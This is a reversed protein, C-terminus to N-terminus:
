QEVEERTFLSSDVVDRSYARQMRMSHSGDANEIDAMNYYRPKGGGDVCPLLLEELSVHDVILIGRDHDMEHQACRALEGRLRIQKTLGMINDDGDDDDLELSEYEITVEADRLLTARFEPPLVLCEETWVLM